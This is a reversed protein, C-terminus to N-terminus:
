TRIVHFLQALQFTSGSAKMTQFRDISNKAREWRLSLTTYRSFLLRAALQSTWTTAIMMVALRESVVQVAQVDELRRVTGEQGRDFVEEKRRAGVVRVCTCRRAKWRAILHSHMLCISVASISIMRDRRLESLPQEIRRSQDWNVRAWPRSRRTGRTWCRKLDLLLQDSWRQLDSPHIRAARVSPHPM